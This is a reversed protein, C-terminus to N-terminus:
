NIKIVICSINDKSGKKVATKVIKNVYEEASEIQKSINLVDEESVVDWVGDSAIILFKNKDEVEVRNVYPTSIVGYKKLGHDGLARTLVLQGFVRGNFVIGESRKVREVEALDSCKHDYSLQKVEDFSVLVVKSDGVNASYIVRIGNEVLILVVCATTGTNESDCFKLEEDIKHFANILANEIKEEKSILKSLLDPMRDKVYKVPDTGGHGDYLSFFGFNNDEIYPDVIKEFDEMTNRFKLNKDEKYAYEKVSYFKSKNKSNVIKIGPTNISLNSNFNNNNILLHNNNSAIKSSEPLSKNNERTKTYDSNAFNISTEKNSSNYSNVNALDSRRSSDIQPSQHININNDKNIIIMKNSSPNMPKMLSSHSFANFINNLNNTLNDNIPKINLNNSHLRPSHNIIKTHSEINPIKNRNPSQNKTNNINNTNNSGEGIGQTNKNNGINMTNNKFFNPKEIRNPSNSIIKLNRTIPSENRFRVFNDNIYNNTGTYPDIKFNEIQKRLPKVDTIEQIDELKLKELDNKNFKEGKMNKNDNM